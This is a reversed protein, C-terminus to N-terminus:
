RTQDESPLTDLPKVRLPFPTSAARTTPVDAEFKAFFSTPASRFITSFPLIHYFYRFFPARHQQNSKPQRDKPTTPRGFVPTRNPQSKRQLPRMRDGIPFLDTRASSPSRGRT